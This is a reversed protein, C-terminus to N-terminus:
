AVRREIASVGVFQFGRAKYTAVISALAESTLTPNGHEAKGITQAHLGALHAVQARSMGLWARAARLQHPSPHM